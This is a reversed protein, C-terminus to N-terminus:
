PKKMDLVAKIKTPNAEIRLQSVIHSLFKEFGVGFSCEKPNLKMNFKRLM